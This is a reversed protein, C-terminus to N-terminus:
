EKVVRRVEYRYCYNKKETVCVVEHTVVKHEIPKVAIATPAENSAGWLLLGFFGVSILVAILDSTM